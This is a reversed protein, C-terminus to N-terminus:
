PRVTPLLGIERALHRLGDLVLTDGDREAAAVGLIDFATRYIGALSGSAVLRVATGPAIATTARAAAIEGGVVLGSLYALNERRDVDGLLHRARVSFLAALFPLGAEATRAVGLKFDRAKAVDGGNETVSHRLFSKKALLEFLEGSIFTQFSQITGDKEVRVWKSHTGPLIVLGAFGPEGAILGAIQTEEGRMVDFDREPTAFKLGPVIAVPRGGTTTFRLTEAALQRPSAPCPLYAAERWGQRSGIMGAMIAPVRPWQACLREFVAEHGGDLRGIGEDSEVTDLVAGDGDLLRARLRSTGWDVAILAPQRPESTM